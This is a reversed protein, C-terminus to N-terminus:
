NNGWTTCFNTGGGFMRVVCFKEFNMGCVPMIQGTDYTLKKFLYKM